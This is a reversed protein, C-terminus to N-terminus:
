LNINPFQFKMGIKAISFANEILRHKKGQLDCPNAMSINMNQSHALISVRCILSEQGSVIGGGIFPCQDDLIHLFPVCANIFALNWGSYGSGIGDVEVNHTLLLVRREPTVVEFIVLIYQRHTIPLQYTSDANRYFEGVLPTRLLNQM